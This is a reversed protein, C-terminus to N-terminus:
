FPTVVRVRGMKFWNGASQIIARLLGLVCMEPTGRPDMERVEMAGARSNLCLFRPLTYSHCLALKRCFGPTVLGEWQGALYPQARLQTTKPLHIDREPNVRRYSPFTFRAMSGVLIESKATRLAGMTNVHDGGWALISGCPEPEAM